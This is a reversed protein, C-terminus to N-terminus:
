KLEEKIQQWTYRYTKTPCWDVLDDVAEVTEKIGHLESKYGVWLRKDIQSTKSIDQPFRKIIRKLRKIEDLLKQLSM